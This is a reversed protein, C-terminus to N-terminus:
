FSTLCRIPWYQVMYPETVISNVEKLVMICLMCFMSYLSAMIHGQAHRFTSLPTTDIKPEFYLEFCEGSIRLGHFHKREAAVQIKIAPSGFSLEDVAKVNGLLLNVAIVHIGEYDMVQRPDLFPSYFMLFDLAAAGAQGITIAFITGSFKCLDMSKIM